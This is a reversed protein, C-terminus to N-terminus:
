KGNKKEERLKLWGGAPAVAGDEQIVIQLSHGGRSFQLRQDNGAKRMFSEFSPLGKTFMDALM